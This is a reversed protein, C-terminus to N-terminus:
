TRAFYEFMHQKAEEIAPLSSKRVIKIDIEKALPEFILNLIESQVRLEMPKVEAEALIALGKGLVEGWLTKLGGESQLLEIGMVLGSAADAVMVGYACAPRQGPQGIRTPTLFVDMEMARQGEPQLARLRDIISGDIRTQIEFPPPEPPTEIRDDWVIAGDQGPRPVRMLYKNGDDPELLEPHDELRMVVGLAQELATALIPVEWNELHWPFYGPRYSRFQPWANRGRFKLGLQRIQALDHADLQSRDEFSATLQRIELLQEPQGSLESGQLNWFEHLAQPGFYVSVGFHTGAAGMVSVYGVLDSDAFRIGFMDTEDMWGWPGLRKMLVAAHYLQRWVENMKQEPM